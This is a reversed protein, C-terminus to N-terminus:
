SIAGKGKGSNELVTNFTKIADSAKTVKNAIDEPFLNALDKTSMKGINSIEKELKGFLQNLKSTSREAKSFDGLKTMTKGSEDALKEYEKGIDILINRLQNGKNGGVNDFIKTLSETKVKAKSVEADIDLIVGIRETNKGM